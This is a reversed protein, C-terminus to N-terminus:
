MEQITSACKDFFEEEKEIEVKIPKEDATTFKRGFSNQAEVSLYGKSVAEKDGIAEGIDEIIKIKDNVLESDIDIGGGKSSFLFSMETVNATRMSRLHEEGNERMRRIIETDPNPQQFKLKLEYIKGIKKLYDKVEEFEMGQTRLAIEFYFGRNKKELCKNIISVFAENFEKYGFRNTVHFGVTEKYIDFYFRIAETNPQSKRQLNGTIKDLEKYYVVSDKYIYGDIFSETKRRISIRYEITNIYKKDDEIYFNEKEHVTGNELDSSVIDMVKRLQNVDDQASFVDVSILNLKSFYLVM